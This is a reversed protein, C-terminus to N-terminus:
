MIYLNEQGRRCFYYIVFFLVSRCLIKPDPRTVHPHKFYTSIIQLDEHAIPKTSNIVGKGKAKAEVTVSKFMENAKTFRTDRIIDINRTTKFYRNLCACICKLTQIAYTEGKIPKACTYFEYLENPLDADLIEELIPKSQQHLFDRFHQVHSETTKQTNKSDKHKLLEDNTNWILQKAYFHVLKCLISWIFPKIFQKSGIVILYKQCM